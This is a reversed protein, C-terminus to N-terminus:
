NDAESVARYYREIIERYRSPFRERLFQIAEEREMERLSGWEEVTPEQPGETLPGMRSDGGPLQSRNAPGGPQQNGSPPGNGQGGGGGGGGGGQQEQERMLEILRDLTAVVEEQRRQTDEGTETRDILREITEMRKALELLPGMGEGRLERALWRAGEQVREPIDRYSPEWGEAAEGEPEVLSELLYRARTATSNPAGRPEPLRAYVYALYLTAEDTWPTGLRFRGRVADLAAAAGQLLDQALLARGLFYAGHARRYHQEKDLRTLYVRWQESNDGTAEFQSYAAAYDEDVVLLAKHIRDRVPIGNMAAIEVAEAVAQNSAHAVRFRDVKQQADPEEGIVPLRPDIAWAKSAEGEPALGLALGVVAATLLSAGTRNRATQM